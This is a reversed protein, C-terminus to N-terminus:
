MHFKPIKAVYTVVLDKPIKAVYTVVLNRQFIAHVTVKGGVTVYSGRLVNESIQHHGLLPASVRRGELLPKKVLTLQARVTGNV